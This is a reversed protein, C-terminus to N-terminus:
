AQTNRLSRVNNKYTNFIMKIFKTELKLYVQDKNDKERAM